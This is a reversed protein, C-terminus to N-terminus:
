EEVFSVRHDVATEYQSSDGCVAHLLVTERAKVVDSSSESTWSDLFPLMLLMTTSWVEQVDSTVKDVPPNLFPFKLKGDYSESHRPIPARSWFGPTFNLDFPFHLWPTCLTRKLMLLGIWAFALKSFDLHWTLYLHFVGHPCSCPFRLPVFVWGKQTLALYCSFLFCNANLQNVFHRLSM